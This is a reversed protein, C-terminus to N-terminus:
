FTCPGSRFLWESIIGVSPPPTIATCFFLISALGHLLHTSFLSTPDHCATPVPKLLPPHSFCTCTIGSKSPPVIECLTPCVPQSGRGICFSFWHSHWPRYEAIVSALCNLSVSLLATHRHMFGLSCVM